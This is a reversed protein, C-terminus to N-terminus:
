PSAAHPRDFINTDAFKADTLAGQLYRAAHSAEASVKLLSEATKSAEAELAAQTSSAAQYMAAAERKALQAKQRDAEAVAQEQLREKSNTQQAKEQAEIIARDAAHESTAQELQKELTKARANAHALQKPLGKSLEAMGQIKVFADDLARSTQTEGVLKASTAAQAASAMASRLGALAQDEQSADKIMAAQATEARHLAALLDYTEQGGQGQAADELQKVRDITEHLIQTVNAEQYVRAEQIDEAQQVEKYALKLLKTADSLFGSSSRTSVRAAQVEEATDALAHFSQEAQMIENEEQNTVRGVGTQLLSNVEREFCTASPDDEASAEAITSIVTIIFCIFFAM